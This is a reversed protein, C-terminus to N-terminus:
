RSARAGPLRLVLSVLEVQRHVGTKALVRKLHQRANGRTIRLQDALEEVTLGQALLEVIEAERRTLGLHQEIHAALPARAQEPDAILVACCGEGSVLGPAGRIELPSVLVAYPRRGSPRPVRLAGGPHEGMLRATQLARM